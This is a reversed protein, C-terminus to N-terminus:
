RPTSPRFLGLGVYRGAGLLIPGAVPEAFEIRAHTLVRKTRTAEGPYSPFHRAKAAGAWPASPLIDVSTPRPLGLRECALRIVEDAEQIAETLKRPDSSRLDGPNRDLAVPTVSYWTNAPSCWVGAKLSTQVSGWEV